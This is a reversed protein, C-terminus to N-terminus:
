YSLILDMGVTFQDAHTGADFPADGYAHDWRVEPRLRLNQLDKIPHIDLGITLETIDSTFGIRSATEDRFYEYRLTAALKHPIIVYTAYGAIGFWNNGAAEDVGTGSENGFDVNIATSFTDTWQYILTVDAVTRYDTQENDREPGTIVNVYATLKDVATWTFGAMHSAADNRNFWDDWGTVIGYYISFDDTIPYDFQVGTHTFPIAFGFLYSHSFLANLPADIVELGHATVYKGAKITLGNGIPLRANVYFVMPDLNLKDGHLPDDRDGTINDALGTSHIFRGDSGYLLELKGGIDFDTGDSLPRELNSTVQNLLYDNSRVDFVRGVNVRDSPSEHNYTYSQEVWGYFKFGLDDAAPKLGVAELGQMGFPIPEPAAVTTTNSAPEDARVLSAEISGFCLAPLAVCAIVRRARGLLALDSGSM